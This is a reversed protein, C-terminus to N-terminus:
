GHEDTTGRSAPPAGCNWCTEFAPGNQEHCRPCTWPAGEPDTQEFETVIGRARDYDAEDEIWVSPRADAPLEGIAGTLMQGHVSAAIGAEALRDRVLQADFANEATYVRRM